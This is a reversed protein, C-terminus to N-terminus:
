KMAVGLLHRKRDPGHGGIGARELRYNLAGTLNSTLKILRPSVPRLRSQNVIYRVSPASLYRGLLDLLQHRRYHRKHDPYPTPLFDGNPTTMLFTGGPKLVHAVNRVFAEDQEVHELVEVAVVVDFSGATLSTETMDDLLYRVVNSRRRQVTAVLTDTAGLDLDAQLETTRPIDSITIRSPLGITYPSRRGGVDLIDLPHGNQLASLRAAVHQRLPHDLPRVLRHLHEYPTMHLASCTRIRSEGGSVLSKDM